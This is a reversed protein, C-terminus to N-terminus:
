DINFTIDLNDIKQHENGDGEKKLVLEPRVYPYMIMINYYVITYLDYTCGFLVIYNFWTCWWAGRPKDNYYYNQSFSGNLGVIFWEQYFILFLSLRLIALRKEVKWDKMRKEM